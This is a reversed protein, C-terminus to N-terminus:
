GGHSHGPNKSPDSEHSPVEATNSEAAPQDERWDQTAEQQTDDMEPGEAPEETHQRVTDDGGPNTQMKGETREAASGHSGTGQIGEDATDGGGFPGTRESSVGMEGALGHRGAANPNSDQVDTDIPGDNPTSEPEGAADYTVGTEESMGGSQDSSQYDGPNADGTPAEGVMPDDQSQEAGFSSESDM